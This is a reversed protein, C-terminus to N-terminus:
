KCRHMKFIIEKSFDKTNIRYWDLDERIAMVNLHSKLIDEPEDLMEDFQRRIALFLTMRMSSYKVNHVGNPDTENM